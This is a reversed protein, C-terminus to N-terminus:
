LVTCSTVTSFATPLQLV